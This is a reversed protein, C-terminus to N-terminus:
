AEADPDTSVVEDDGEGETGQAGEAAAGEAATGVAKTPSSARAARGRESAQIKVAAATVADVDEPAVSVLSESVAAAAEVVEEREAVLQEGSPLNQHKALEAALAESQTHALELAQIAEDRHAVARMREVQQQELQVRLEEQELITKELELSLGEITAEQVEITEEDSRPSATRPRPSTKGSKKGGKKGGPSGPASGMSCVGKKSQNSELRRVDAGYQKAQREALAMRQKLQDRENKCALLEERVSADGRMRKKLANLEKELAVSTPNTVVQGLPDREVEWKDMVVVAPANQKDKIDKWREKDRKAKDRASAAFKWTMSDNKLKAMQSKMEDVEGQMETRVKKLGRGELFSAELKKVLDLKERKNKLKTQQLEVTLALNRDAMRNDVVPESGGREPSDDGGRSPSSAASPPGVPSANFSPVANGQPMYSTNTRSVDEHMKAREKLKRIEVAAEARVQDVQMAIAMEARQGDNHRAEELMQIRRRAEQLMQRQQGLKNKLALVDSGPGPVSQRPLNTGDTKLGLRVLPSERMFDLMSGKGVGPAIGARGGGFSGASAQVQVGGNAEMRRRLVVVDMLRDTPLSFPSAASSGGGWSAGDATQDPATRPRQSEGYASGGGRSSARSGPRSRQSRQSQAASRGGQSSAGTVSGGGGGGQSGGGSVARYTATSNDLRLLSDDEPQEFEMESM